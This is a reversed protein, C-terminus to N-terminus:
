MRNWNSNIMMMMMTIIDRLTNSTATEDIKIYIWKLTNQRGRHPCNSFFDNEVSFESGERKLESLLIETKTRNTRRPTNKDVLSFSQM